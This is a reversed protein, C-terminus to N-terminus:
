SGHCDYAHVVYWLLLDLDGYRGSTKCRRPYQKGAMGFSLCCSRQRRVVHKAFVSLGFTM